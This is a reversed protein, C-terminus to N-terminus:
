KCVGWFNPLLYSEKLTKTTNKV